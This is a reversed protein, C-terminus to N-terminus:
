LSNTKEHTFFNKHLIISKLFNIDEQSTLYTPSFRVYGHWLATHIGNDLLYRHITKSDIEPHKVSYIGSLDSESFFENTYNEFGFENLIDQIRKGNQRTKFAIDPTTNIIRIAENLGVIAGVNLSSYKFKRADRYVHFSTDFDFYQVNEINDTGIFTPEVKSLFEEACYLFGSGIPGMLWKWGCSALASIKAKRVDIEAIGASQAADVFFDIHHKECISGISELPIQLGSLYSIHSIALVRTTPQIYNELTELCIVGKEVPIFDVVVGLKKLELWPYVNAPYENDPILVRDGKQWPYGKAILNIGESTNGVYAIEEPNSNILVSVNKRFNVFSM